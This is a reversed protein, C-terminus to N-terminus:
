YRDAFRATSPVEYWDDAHKRLFPIRCSRCYHYSISAFSPGLLDYSAGYRQNLKEFTRWPKVAPIQHKNGLFPVGRPGPPMRSRMCYSSYVARATVAFCLLLIVQMIREENLTYQTVAFVREIANM